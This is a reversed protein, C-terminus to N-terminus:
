ISYYVFLMQVQDIGPMAAYLQSGGSKANVAGDSLKRRSLHAPKPKVPPKSSPDPVTPNKGSGVAGTSPGPSLAAAPKAEIKSSSAPPSSSLMSTSRPSYSSAARKLKSGTAPAEVAVTATSSRPSLKGEREKEKADSPSPKIISPTQSKAIKERRKELM